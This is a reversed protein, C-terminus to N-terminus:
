GPPETPYPPNSGPRIVLSWDEPPARFAPPESAKDADTATLMANVLPLADAAFAAVGPMEEEPIEALAAKPVTLAPQDRPQRLKASWNGLVHFATHWHSYEALSLSNGHVIRAPIGMLSTQMYTMHVCKLDTDVATVHLFKQPNIDIDRLAQALALIMVGAGCAPEMATLFGREAIKDEVETKTGLMMKAMMYAVPWPTFTQYSSRYLEASAILPGFVCEETISLEEVFLKFMTSLAMVDAREYRKVISMYAAEREDYHRLDVKNSLAIAGMELFDRFVRNLDHRRGLDLLM